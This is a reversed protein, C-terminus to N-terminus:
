MVVMAVITSLAVWLWSWGVTRYLHSSTLVNILPRGVDGRVTEDQDSRIVSSQKMTFSDATQREFSLAVGQFYTTSSRM